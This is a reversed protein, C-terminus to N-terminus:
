FALSSRRAKCKSSHTRTNSPKKFSSTTPPQFRTSSSDDDSNDDKMLMLQAQKKQKSLELEKQKEELRNMQLTLREKKSLFSIGTRKSLQKATLQPLNECFGNNEPVM